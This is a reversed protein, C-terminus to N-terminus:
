LEPPPESYKPRANIAEVLDDDWRPGSLLHEVISSQRGLPEDYDQASLVVAARKGRVTVPQPGESWALRVAKSLSRKADELRWSM